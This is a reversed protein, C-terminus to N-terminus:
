EARKPTFMARGINTYNIDGRPWLSKLNHKNQHGAGKEHDVDDESEIGEYAGQDDQTNEHFVECLSYREDNHADGFGTQKRDLNM